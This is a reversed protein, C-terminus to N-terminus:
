SRFNFGLFRVLKKIASFVQSVHLQSAFMLHASLCGALNLILNLRQGLLPYFIIFVIRVQDM